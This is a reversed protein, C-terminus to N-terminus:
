HTAWNLLVNSLIYKFWYLIHSNFTLIHECLPFKHRWRHVNFPTDLLSERQFCFIKSFAELPLYLSKSFAVSLAFLLTKNM